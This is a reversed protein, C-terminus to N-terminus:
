KQYQYDNNIIYLSVIQGIDPRYIIYGIKDNKINLTLNIDSNSKFLRYPQKFM